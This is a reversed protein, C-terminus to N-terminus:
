NRAHIRILLDKNKKGLTELVFDDPSIRVGNKMAIHNLSIGDVNNTKLILSKELNGNADNIRYGVLDAKDQDITRGPMAVTNLNLNEPNDYFLIYHNDNHSFYMFSMYGQEEGGVQRKPIKRMWIVQGDKDIKTILIANYHSLPVFRSSSTMSVPKGPNISPAGNDSQIKTRYAIYESTYQQEGVILLGGGKEPIIEKMKLNDLDRIHDLEEYPDKEKQKTTTNQRRIVEPIQHDVSRIIKGDADFQIYMIGDDDQSYTDYYGICDMTKNEGECLHVKDIFKNGLPIITKQLEATNAHLKLFELHYNPDKRRKKGMERNDKNFIKAMFCVNGQDDPTYELNVMTEESYPMEVEKGWKLDMNSDFVYFGEIAKGKGQNRLKQELQYNILIRSTDKSFCINFVNLSGPNEYFTRKSVMQWGLIKKDSDIICKAEGKFSCDSFDIERYFLKARHNFKNWKSYFFYYHNKIKGLYLFDEMKSVDSIVNSKILKLTNANFKQLALHNNTLKVALIENNACFFYRIPFNVVNYPEGVSYSFDNATKEQSFSLASYFMLILMLMRKM